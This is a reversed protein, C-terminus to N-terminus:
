IPSPKMTRFVVGSSPTWAGEQQVLYGPQGYDNKDGWNGWNNRNWGGFVDASIEVLDGGSIVHSWRDFALAMCYGLLAATAYQAFRQEADGELYYLEMAMHHHRDEDIDPGSKISTDNNPWKATSVAGYKHMYEASDGEYGGSRYSIEPCLSNASLEVYPNGAIVRSTTGAHASGNRWCSPLGDQDHPPFNQFDSVRRRAAKQEKILRSWESRPIIPALASFPKAYALKNHGPPEPKRSCYRKHGNVELVGVVSGDPLRETHTPLILHETQENIILM